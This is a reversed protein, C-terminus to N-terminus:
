EILLKQTVRTNLGALKLVYIGRTLTPPLQIAYIVSKGTHDLQQRHVLQGTATYVEMTYRGTAVSDMRLTFRKGTVPNPYASIGQGTQIGAMITKQTGPSNTNDAGRNVMRGTGGSEEDDTIKVKFRLITIIDGATMKVSVLYINDHDMDNPQEFDPATKFELSGTSPNIWFLAGDEKDVMAFTVTSGADDDTGELPTVELTNEPISVTMTAVPPNDNQDTITISFRQVALLSGDSAQVSVLYTNDSNADAPHEFDPATIFSLGGTSPNVTFLIGDKESLISYTVATSDADTATVTTVQVTNEPLQLSVTANGNYSTIVPTNDNENTIKIKFRQTATSDGDSAKVTVVYVNDRNGDAPQEFDPATIFRLEGTSSNVSFKGADEENVLSYIITTNKDADTATVTGAATTNEPIRLTVAADGNYSTIVPAHDNADTVKIKFRQIATSDGDSVEVGVIYANDGNADGPQEYDPATIFSLAGTSSNVAFKAADEGGALSYVLTASEADTATVTAVVTTNEAVQMTVAANGAYSTIVPATNIVVGAPLYEYAGPSPRAAHRAKGTYDTTIGTGGTGKGAVYQRADEKISLDATDIGTFLDSPAIQSVPYFDSNADGGNSKWQAFNLDASGWRGIKNADASILLNNDSATPNWSQAPPVAANYFIYHAGNGGTRANVLVNNRILYTTASPSSSNNRGIPASVATHSAAGNNGGIYITNHYAKVTLGFSNAQIGRLECNNTYAGNDLAILNNYITAPAAIDMGAVLTSSAGLDNASALDYLKNNYIEASGGSLSIGYMVTAGTMPATGTLRLRRITNNKITCVPSYMGYIGANGSAALSASSLDSVMNSDIIHNASGQCFIGRINTVSGTGTYGLAIGAISNNKYNITILNGQAITGIGYFNYPMSTSIVRINDSVTTSGIVNDAINLTGSTSPNFLVHIGMLTGPTPSTQVGSVTIGGIKNGTISGGTPTGFELVYSFLPSTAASASLKIDDHGESNGITNNTVDVKGITVTIANFLLGADYNGTRIDLNRITNNSIVNGEGNGNTSGSFMIGSFHTLPTSLTFPEGGCQPASGGIFNDSIITNATLDEGVDIGYLTSVGTGTSILPQTQYISNHTIQTNLVGASLYIGMSFTGARFFNFVHNYTIINGSNFRATDMFFTGQVYIGCLPKGAVDSRDRVDCYSITNYDNGQTGTTRGIFMVGPSIDYSAEGEAQLYTLTNYQADNILALTPCVQTGGRTNRILWNIGGTGGARGDLIMRDTGNLTILATNAGSNGATTRMTVGAKPRITVTWNGTSTFQNFTLPFTEGTTGDYDSDLEFIVNGTVANGANNLAAAVDKLKKYVPQGSGVLYTGSLSAPPNDGARLCTSSCCLFLSVLLLYKQM